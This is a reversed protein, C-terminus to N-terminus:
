SLEAMVRRFQNPSAGTHQQFFRTFNGQATFGLDGSIMGIDSREKRLKGVAAEVRLANAYLRPSVGTCSRFLYNFHPRSLGAGTAVGDLDLRKEGTCEHIQRLAKLIRFDRVVHREGRGFSQARWDSFGHVVELTLDLILKELQRADIHLETQLLRVLKARLRMIEFTISIASQAFFGPRTCNAFSGDAEALWDPEIYLALFVTREPKARHLYEHQQWTNVAVATDYRLPFVRGEVIFEQDPGSAKFILHCHPHAHAVLSTDMDLLAVRGFAGSLISLAKTVSTGRCAAAEQLM